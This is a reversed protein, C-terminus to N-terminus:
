LAQRTLDLYGKYAGLFGRELISLETLRKHMFQNRAIDDCSKYCGCTSEADNGILSFFADQKKEVQAKNRFYKQRNSSWADKFSQHYINGIPIRHSKLCSNIDGDPMIRAFSHAIYCPFSEIINKDHEGFNSDTSSLRRMFREFGFLLVKNKYLNDRAESWVQECQEYLWIRAKETLLLQDTKGPITDVLTFEVSECGTDVCFDLMNHFDQYNLMSVVHYVKCYPKTSKLSNLMRIGKKAKHFAKHGKNPHTRSYAEASGAWMSLTFHDIGIELVRRLNEETCLRLFNTNVYLTMGLDKIAEWIEFIQPHMTPDGGGAMYIEKTGIEAMDKLTPLIIDLPITDKKSAPDILLDELMPSNSWCAVCDNNCLNTVDLQVLQPGIYSENVSQVGAMRRYDDLTSVLKENPTDEFGVEKSRYFFFRFLADPSLFQFRHSIKKKEGIGLHYAKLLTQATTTWNYRNEAQQRASVQLKAKLEPDNLVKQVGGALARPDGARVLVGAEGHALMEGVEGMESAVIARGAALYECIKLPSKTRTQPTDEFAAVCVDSVKLFKPIEAHPVSGTFIIHEQLGLDEAERMLELFSSGNGIIFYTVDQRDQVLLEVTKLFLSAYQAGHLQGMYTVVHEKLQYQERIRQADLGKTNFSELDGGVPAEFIATHAIGLNRAQTWLAKSSVSLTDVLYPIMKEIHNMTRYWYSDHPCSTRFIEAEWDDWDYHVPTSTWIGALISPISVYAFGKQFHIVDAWRAMEIMKRTKLLLTGAHRIMPITKFPYEQRKRELEPDQHPNELHYVLRVQHGQKVFEQALYTIRVTWPEVTSYVDHPHIMLINM